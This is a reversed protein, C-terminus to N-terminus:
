TRPCQDGSLFLRCFKGLCGPVLELCLHVCYFHLFVVDIPTWDLAAAIHRQFARVVGCARDVLVFKENETSEVCGVQPEIVNVDQFGTFNIIEASKM